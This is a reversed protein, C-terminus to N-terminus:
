ITSRLMRRLNIDPLTVIVNEQALTVSTQKVRVEISKPFYGLELKSRMLIDSCSKFILITNVTLFQWFNLETLSTKVLM